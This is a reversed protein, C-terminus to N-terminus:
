PPTAQNVLSVLVVTIFTMKLEPVIISVCYDTFNPATHKFAICQMLGQIEYFVNKHTSAVPYM